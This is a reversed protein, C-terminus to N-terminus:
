KFPYPIFEQKSGPIYSVPLGRDYRSTSNLAEIIDSQDNDSLSLM